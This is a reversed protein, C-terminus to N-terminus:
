SYNIKPYKNDWRSCFKDFELLAKQETVSQYIPKLDSVVAKYDKWSVYKTSNQAM